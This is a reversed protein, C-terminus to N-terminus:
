RVSTYPIASSWERFWEVRGKIRVKFHRTSLLSADLVRKKLRVRGPISGQDELDNAFVRSMLGFSLEVDIFILM